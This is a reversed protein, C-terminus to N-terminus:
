NSTTMNFVIMGSDYIVRSNELINEKILIDKIPLDKVKSTFVKEVSSIELELDFELFLEKLELYSSTSNALEVFLGNLSKIKSNPYNIKYDLYDESRSSAIAIDKCWNYDSNKSFSGWLLRTYDQIDMKSILETLIAKHMKKNDLFSRNVCNTFRVDLYNDRIYYEITAGDETASLLYDGLSTARDEKTFKVQINETFIEATLHYSFLLYILFFLIKSRIFLKKMIQHYNIVHIIPLLSM